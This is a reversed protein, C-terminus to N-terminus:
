WRYEGGFSIGQVWYDTTDFAFAPRLAGTLPDVPPPLLDTNLDRSIHDGPRVINSWYIFTYGLTMRLHDTLQYGLNLNYEPVVAFEDQRYTGINSTQALLGGTLTQSPPNSPDNLTTQGNITVTQKTVGIALRISNDWTWFGRTRRYKWGVDFGNFQNRTDFRDFLDLTGPNATDTSVTSESIQVREDLQLYRYGFMTETRSCFHDPTGCFLSQSCGDETLRLRRFHFGAGKLESRASANVTGTVVGPYAVIGSDEVGTQTNFFPRALVPAGTSTGSYGETATSFNFFEAGVGWTHYRNLWVGFRLRGGDLSDELVSGGGFLIRTSPDTLVGAQDRTVNPDVSTTVLPPLSMGDQYWGLAEFSLWGDQPLSLTVMPRWANPSYLEGCMSCGASGCSGCDGISDCGADCGTCELSGCGCVAAPLADCAISGGQIIEGRIPAFAVQGDLPVGQIPVEIVSIPEGSASSDPVPVPPAPLDETQHVTRVRSNEDYGSDLRAASAPRTPQWTARAVRESQRVSRGRYPSNQALANTAVFATLLFSVRLTCRLNRVPNM